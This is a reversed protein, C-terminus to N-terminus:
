GEHCTNSNSGGGGESYTNNSTGESYTNNINSSKCRENGSVNKGQKPNGIFLIMVVLVYVIKKKQYVGFLEFCSVYFLQVFM